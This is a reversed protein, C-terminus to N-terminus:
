FLRVLAKAGSGAGAPSVVQGVARGTATTKQVRGATASPYVIDGFNVAESTVLPVTGHWAVAVEPRPVDVGIRPYNGSGTYTNDSGTATSPEADYLAVGLWQDNVGTTKIVKGATGGAGAKVLSGGPISEGAEFTEPGMRTRAVVGAM